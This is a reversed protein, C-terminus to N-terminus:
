SDTKLNMLQFYPELQSANEFTQLGVIQSDEEKSIKLEVYFDGLQYLEYKFDPQDKEGLKTGQTSLTQQQGQKDLGTFQQLTMGIM